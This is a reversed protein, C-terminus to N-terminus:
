RKVVEQMFCYPSPAKRRSFKILICRSSTSLDSSKSGELRMVM